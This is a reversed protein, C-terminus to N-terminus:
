GASWKWTFYVFTRLLFLEKVLLHCMQYKSLIHLILTKVIYLLYMKMFIRLKCPM